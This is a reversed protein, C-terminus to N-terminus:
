LVWRIFAITAAIFVACLCIALVFGLFQAMPDLPRRPQEPMTNEENHTM